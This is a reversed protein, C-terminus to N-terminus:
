LPRDCYWQAGTKNRWIREPSKWNERRIGSYLTIELYTLRYSYPLLLVYQLEVRESNLDPWVFIDARVFDVCIILRDMFIPLKKLVWILIPSWFEEFKSHRLLEFTVLNLKFNAVEFEFWFEIFICNFEKFHAQLNLGFNKWIWILIRSCIWILIREFEFWFEVVFIGNQGNDRM